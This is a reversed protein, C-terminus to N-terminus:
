VSKLFFELRNMLFRRGFGTKFYKERKVADKEHLCSEYYVLKLPRKSATSKVKGKKHEEIRETLDQTFGIYFKEDKESLLVYTYFM